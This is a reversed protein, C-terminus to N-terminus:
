KLRMTTFDPVIGAQQAPESKIRQQYTQRACERCKATGKDQRLSGQNRVETAGCDCIVSYWWHNNVLYNNTSPHYHSRAITEVVTLNGIRDGKAYRPPSPKGSM